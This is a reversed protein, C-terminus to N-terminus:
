PAKTDDDKAVEQVHVIIKGACKGTRLKEFAKPADEFPFVEEIHAKLKGEAMWKALQALSEKSTKVTFFEFKRRGGGLFSPVLMKSSMSKVNEWDMGGGIQVFKGSPVLYAESAKYLDPPSLGVNDLVLTFVQGAQKLRETVNTTTYDIIEDAGLEKCLAVKSTSCSVTVHCGLAKAVQIALTGVGGSGGNIFVKDGAKVRSQIVQQATMGATPVAAGQDPSVSAPLSICSSGKVVVFESLAGASGLDLKGFVLEGVSFSDVIRGLRAVRGCFDLAPTAPLSIVARAILGIEPVKFDAPNLGVSLVQVVIEADGLRPSLEPAALGDRLVLNKELGGAVGDYQWARM